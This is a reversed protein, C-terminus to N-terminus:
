DGRNGFYVYGKPNDVEEQGRSAIKEFDVRSRLRQIGIDLCVDGM